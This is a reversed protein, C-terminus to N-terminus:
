LTLGIVALASIVFFATWQPLPGVTGLYRLGYFVFLLGSSLYLALPLLSLALNHEQWYAAALFSLGGFILIASMAHWLVSWAAKAPKSLSSALLPVHFERGGPFIHVIGLLIGCTGSVVLWLNM